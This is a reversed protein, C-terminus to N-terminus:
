FIVKVKDKVVSVDKINLYKLYLYDKTNFIKKGEVYSVLFNAAFNLVTNNKFDIEKNEKFIKEISVNTLQIDNKEKDYKLSSKIRTKGNFNIKPAKIHYDTDVYIYGEIIELKPNFFDVEAIFNKKNVPFVKNIGYNLVSAPIDVSASLSLVSFFALYIITIIKKM